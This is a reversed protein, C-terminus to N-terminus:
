SDWPVAVMTDDIYAFLSLLMARLAWTGFDLGSFPGRSYGTNRAFRRGDRSHYLVVRDVVSVHVGAGVSICNFITPLM